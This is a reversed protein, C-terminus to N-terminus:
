YRVKFGCASAVIYNLLIVSGIAMYQSCLFIIDIFVHEKMLVNLESMHNNKCKLSLNLLHPTVSVLPSGFIELIQIMRVFSIYNLTRGTPVTLRRYESSTQWTVNHQTSQTSKEPIKKLHSCTHKAIKKLVAYAWVAKLM